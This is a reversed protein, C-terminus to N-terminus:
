PSPEFPISLDPEIVISDLFSDMLGLRSGWNENDVSAAICYLRNGALYLRAKYTGDYGTGRMDAEAILARGPITQDYSIDSESILRARADLLADDRGRSLIERTTLGALSQASHDCYQVLWIAGNDRVLTLICEVIEGFTKKTITYEMLTQTAEPYPFTVEFKGQESLFHVPWPTPNVPLTPASSKSPLSATAPAQAIKREATKVCGSTSLLSLAMTLLLQILTSGHKM